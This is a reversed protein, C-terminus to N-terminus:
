LVIELVEAGSALHVKVPAGLREDFELVLTLTLGVDVLGPATTLEVRVAAKVLSGDALEVRVEAPPEWRVPQAVGLEIVLKGGGRRALRGLLIRPPAAQREFTEAKAAPAPAPMPEPRTLLRKALDRLGGAKAKAPPSADQRPPPPAAYPAPAGAEDDARDEAMERRREFEHSAKPASPPVPAARLTAGPRGTPAPMFAASSPRVSGGASRLGVGEASLGYALAQPMTEHRRPARPDVTPQASVAVWSTLRTSIQFDLGLREIQPDVEHKAAGTALALELEEVCERAYLAALAPSGEGRDVPKVELHEEILGDASRATIILSGGEPRLRLPLLAPAGGYLDPLRALASHSLASGSVQVDALLPASTRALLRKVFPEVDEGLGIVLEVGRGARAAPATLSRNVGSGVGVTHVRSGAPLRKSIAELVEHEFGILGDTILVVQRQSESRLPTLAELIGTRMETGGSAQLRALWAQADRRNAATAPVPGRKWRRPATSFEILELQDADTLTDVLAATVRRAQDLPAGGMSGSTDLLVILDRPLATAKAEPAPPVLTVLGYAADSTVGGAPRAVDLSTGVALEAVRWRVVVDRDLTPGREDAFAVTTRGVARETHLAHSPSEPRFGDALRDRITLALSLRVPLEDETVEVTVKSHDAVRQPAGLYRPAVVTPFRWEWAGDPLWALKQDVRVECVVQTRPPVNGVEQTFLSTREQDLLAATRGELIADEFRERARARTDVQGEVRQDGVRFAFGSVAGDAPLPLSYTVKLPEDYPNRFTQELTLRVLGGRADATLSAGILPLARGDTTVLRGGTSEYSEPPLKMAAARSM